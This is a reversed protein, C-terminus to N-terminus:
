PTIHEIQSVAQSFLEWSLNVVDQPLANWHIITRPYFSFKHYDNRSQIHKFAQSHSTRSVRSISKLYDPLPIAVQDNLINYLMFLRQDIRRQDLRRWEISNLM